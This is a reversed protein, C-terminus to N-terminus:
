LAIGHGVQKLAQQIEDTVVIADPQGKKSLYEKVLTLIAQQKNEFESKMPYEPHEWLSEVQQQALKLAREESLDVFMRQGVHPLYTPEPKDSQWNVHQMLSKCLRCGVLFPTVGDRSNWIIERHIPEKECRYEMLCFAEGHRYKSKIGERASM